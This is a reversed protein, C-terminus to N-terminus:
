KILLLERYKQLPWEDYDVILELKDVAYRLVPTPVLIVSVQLVFAWYSAETVSLGSDAWAETKKFYCSTEIYLNNTKYWKRDRKVEVTRGETLLEEVLKEQSQKDLSSGYVILSPSENIGDAGTALNTVPKPLWPFENGEPDSSAFIKSGDNFILAVPYGGYYNEWGEAWLELKTMMRVEVVTLGIPYAVQNNKSMKKM